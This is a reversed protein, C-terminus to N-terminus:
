DRRETVLDRAEAYAERVAPTPDATYSEVGDVTWQPPEDSGLLVWAAQRAAGDAAYEGPPPVLVPAGLIAPAIARVARSRSGGGILVIRRVRAGQTTLADLGDALACLLGEVAARALHAPTSTALRLGHLAGTARPRNPTREGEFYPVLVLGDAGAPASLALAALEDLDVGLM